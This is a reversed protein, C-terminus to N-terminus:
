DCTACCSCHVSPMTLPRTALAGSSKRRLSALRPSTSEAEANADIRHSRAADATTGSPKIPAVTLATNSMAAPRTGATVTEAAATASLSRSALSISMVFSLHVAAASSAAPPVGKTAAASTSAPCFPPAVWLSAVGARLVGIVM